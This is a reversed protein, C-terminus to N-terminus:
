TAPDVPLWELARMDEFVCGKFELNQADQWANIADRLADDLDTLQDKSLDFILADSWDANGHDDQASAEAQEIMCDVSVYAALELKAPPLAQYIVRNGEARAAAIAAERTTYPGSAPGEDDHAAYWQWANETDTM